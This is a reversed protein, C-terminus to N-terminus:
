ITLGMRDDEKEENQIFYINLPFSKQTFIIKM